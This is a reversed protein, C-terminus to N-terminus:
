RTEGISPSPHLQKIGMQVSFPLVPHPFYNHIHEMIIPPCVLSPPTETHFNSATNHVMRRLFTKRNMSFSTLEEWRMSDARETLIVNITVVYISATRRNFANRVSGHGNRFWFARYTKAYIVISYRLTRASPLVTTKVYTKPMENQRESLVFHFM